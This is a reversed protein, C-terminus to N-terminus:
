PSKGSVSSHLCFRLHELDFARRDPTRSSLIGVFSVEQTPMSFDPEGLTVTHSGARPPDLWLDIEPDDMCGLDAVVAGRQGGIAFLHDLDISRCGFIVWMHTCVSCTPMRSALLPFHPSPRPLGMRDFRVSVIPFRADISSVDSTDPSLLGRPGKARLGIPELRELLSSSPM